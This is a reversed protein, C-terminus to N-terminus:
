IRPSVRPFPSGSIGTIIGLLRGVVRSNSVILCSWTQLSVKKRLPAFTLNKKKKKTFNEREKQRMKPLDILELIAIHIYIYICMHENM